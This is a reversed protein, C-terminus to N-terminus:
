YIIIKTSVLQVADSSLNVEYLREYTVFQSFPNMYFDKVIPAKLFQTVVSNAMTVINFYDKKLQLQNSQLLFSSIHMATLKAVYICLLSLM